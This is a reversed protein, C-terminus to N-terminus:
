RTEKKEDALAKISEVTVKLKLLGSAAKEKKVEIKIMVKELETPSIPSSTIEQDKEDKEEM